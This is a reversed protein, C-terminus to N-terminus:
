DLSGDGVGHAIGPVASGSRIARAVDARSVGRYVRWVDRLARRDRIVVTCANEDDCWVEFHDLPVGDSGREAGRPIWCGSKALEEVSCQRDLIARWPTNIVTPLRGKVAFPNCAGARSEGVAVQHGWGREVGEAYLLSILGRLKEADSPTPLSMSRCLQTTLAPIRDREDHFAGYQVAKCLMQGVPACWRLTTDDCTLLLAAGAVASPTAKSGASTFVLPLRRDAAWAQHSDSVNLGHRQRHREARECISELNAPHDMATMGGKLLLIQQLYQVSYRVKQFVPNIMQEQFVWGRGLMEETNLGFSEFAQPVIVIRPDNYLVSMLQYVVYSKVEDIGLHCLCDVWIHDVYKLAADVVSATNEGFGVNGVIHTKGWKYSCTFRIHELHMLRLYYVRDLEISINASDKTTVVLYQNSRRGEVTLSSLRGWEGRQNRVDERSVHLM